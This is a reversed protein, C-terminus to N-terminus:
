RVNVRGRVKWLGEEDEKEEKEWALRDEPL